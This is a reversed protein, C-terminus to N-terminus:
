LVAQSSESLIGYVSDRQPPLTNTSNGVKRATRIGGSFWQKKQSHWCQILYRNASAQRQAVLYVRSKGVLSRRISGVHLIRQAMNVSVLRSGMRLTPDNFRSASHLICLHHRRLCPLHLQTEKERALQLKRHHISLIHQHRFRHVTHSCKRLSHHQKNSHSPQIPRRINSGNAHRLPFRHCGHQQHSSHPLTDQRELRIRQLLPLLHIRLIASRDHLNKILRLIHRQHKQVM